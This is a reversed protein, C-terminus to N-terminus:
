RRHDKLFAWFLEPASVDQTKPGSVSEEVMPWGHGHGDLRYFAVPAAGEWRAELVRTGDGPDRDPLLTVRPESACANVRCWYAITEEAPLGMENGDWPMLPDLTGLAILIPMPRAPPPGAALVRPEISVMIATGAIREPMAHALAYSMSGGNSGGVVYIRAPDTLGDAVLRDFMAGFFAFDKAGEAGIRSGASRGDPDWNWGNRLGSPYVIVVGERAGMPTFDTKYHMQLGSTAAGGHLAFLTPAPGTLGEPVFVFFEREQDEVSLIRRELSAPVTLEGQGPLSPAAAAGGEAFRRALAKRREAASELISARTAIEDATLPALVAELSAERAPDALAPHLLLGAGVVFAPAMRRFVRLGM